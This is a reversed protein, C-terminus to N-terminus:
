DRIFAHRHHDVFRATGAFESKDDKFEEILDTIMDIIIPDDGVSAREHIKISKVMKVILKARAKKLRRRDLNCIRITEEARDDDNDKVPFIHALLDYRFYSECDVDVCPNFLKPSEDAIEDTPKMARKNEVILPFQDFKGSAPLVTPDEFTPQDKYHGNCYKCSPLLNEWTYVLWYYGDHDQNERVRGKPRYHEVEWPGQSTAQGECYACKDNFLTELVTKVETHKYHDTVIHGGGEEIAQDTLQKAEDFWAPSPRVPVGGRTQNRDVFIM